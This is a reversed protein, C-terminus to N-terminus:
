GIPYGTSHAFRRFATALAKTVKGPHGDGITRRDVDVVSIVEAATGTLFVEDANYLDYRTLM